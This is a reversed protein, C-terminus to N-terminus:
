WLNTDINPVVVAIRSRVRHSEPGGQEKAKRIVTEMEAIFKQVRRTEDCYYGQEHSNFVMQSLALVRRAADQWVMTGYTNDRADEWCVLGNEAWYRVVSGKGWMPFQLAVGHEGGVHFVGSTSFVKSRSSAAPTLLM